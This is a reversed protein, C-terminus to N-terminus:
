LYKKRRFEEITILNLSEKRHQAFVKYDMINESCVFKDRKRNPIIVGVGWDVDIVFMELDDREMRMQVFAKWVTGNWFGRSEKERQHWETPPNCDHLLIIGYEKLCALSNKIDKYVQDHQHLGDIFILDYKKTNRKFFEDSTILYNAKSRADPDVGDKHLAKVHNFNDNLNRVGVELYEKDGPPLKEMLYYNIVDTRNRIPYGDVILWPMDARAIGRDIAALQTGVAKM